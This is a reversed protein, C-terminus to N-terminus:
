LRITRLYYEIEKLYKQKGKIKVDDTKTLADYILELEEKLGDARFGQEIYNQIRKYYNELEQGSFREYDKTPM